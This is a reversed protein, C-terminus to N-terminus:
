APELRNSNQVYVVGKKTKKEILFGHPPNGDIIQQWHQKSAESADPNNELLETARKQVHKFVGEPISKFKYDAEPDLLDKPQIIRYWEGWQRISKM